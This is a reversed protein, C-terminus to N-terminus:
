DSILEYNSEICRAKVSVKGVQNARIILLDSEAGEEIELKKRTDLPM